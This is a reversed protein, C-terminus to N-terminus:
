EHDEKQLPEMERYYVDGKYPDLKVRYYELESDIEDAVVRVDALENLFWPVEHTDVLVIVDTDSPVRSLLRQQVPQWDEPGCDPLLTVQIAGVTDPDQREKETVNGPEMRVVDDDGALYDAIWTAAANGLKPDRRFNGEVFVVVSRDTDHRQQVFAAFSEATEPTDNSAM